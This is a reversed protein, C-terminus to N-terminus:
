FINFRPLLIANEGRFLRKILTSFCPGRLML